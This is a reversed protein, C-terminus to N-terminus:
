TGHAESCLRHPDSTLMAPVGLRVHFYGALHEWEAGPAISRMLRVAPANTSLLEATLVLVGERAATQALRSFAARGLGQRRFDERVAIALEGRSGDARDRVCRAGCVVRPRDGFGDFGLVCLRRDEPNAFWRRVELTSPGQASSFFRDHRTDASSSCYAESVAEADDATPHRFHVIEGSPCVHSALIDMNSNGLRMLPPQM